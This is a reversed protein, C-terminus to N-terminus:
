ELHYIRVPNDFLYARAVDVAASQSLYGEEVIGALAFALERRLLKCRAYAWEVNDSESAFGNAKTVPLTEIRHRLISRLSTPFSLSPGFASACVNGFARSIVTLEDALMGNSVIVDFRVRPHRAFLESYMALMQTDYGSIWHDASRKMGISLQLPMRHELCAALITDMVFSRLARRDERNTKQGLLVLSLIRDASERDGEEFDIQPAFAASVAAVGASSARLFLEQISKKLDAAEYVPQGTVEGLRDLTRQLFPENILSDLRLLPVFAETAAPLVRTWECAALSRSINAKALVSAPWSPDSASQEVKRWLDEPDVDHPDQHIDYLDRLIQSLCWTTTTSRTKSLHPLAEALRKRASEIQLVDSPVLASELEAVVHRELVLEAASSAAPSQIDLRSSIDISQIAYIETLLENFLEM